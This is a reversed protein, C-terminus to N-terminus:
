PLFTALDLEEMQTPYLAVSTTSRGDLSSCQPTYPLFHMWPEFQRAPARQRYQAAERQQIEGATAHKDVLMRGSSVDGAVNALREVHRRQRGRRQIQDGLSPLDGPVSNKRLISSRKIRKRKM